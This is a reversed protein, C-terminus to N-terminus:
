SWAEENFNTLKKFKGLARLLILPERDTPKHTSMNTQRQIEEDRSEM